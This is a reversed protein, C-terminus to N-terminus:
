CIARCMTDCVCTYPPANVNIDPHAGAGLGRRSLGTSALSAVDCTYTGNVTINGSPGHITSNYCEPYGTVEAGPTGPLLFPTSTNRLNV